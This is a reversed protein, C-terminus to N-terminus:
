VVMQNLFFIDQMTSTRLYRFIKHHYRLMKSSAPRFLGGQVWFVWSCFMKLNIQTKPLLKIEKKKFFVTKHRWRCTIISRKTGHPLYSLISGASGISKWMKICNHRARSNGLQFKQLAISGPFKRIVIFDEALLKDMSRRRLLECPWNIYVKDIALVIVQCHLYPPYTLDPPPYSTPYAPLTPDLWFPSM